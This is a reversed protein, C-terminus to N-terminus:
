CSDRAHTIYVKCEIYGPINSTLMVRSGSQDTENTFMVNSRIYSGPPLLLATGDDRPAVFGCFRDVATKYGMQNEGFANDDIPLWGSSPGCSSIYNASERKLSNAESPKFTDVASYAVTPYPTNTASGHSTHVFAAGCLISTSVAVLCSTLPSM